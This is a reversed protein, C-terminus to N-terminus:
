AKITQWFAVVHVNAFNLAVVFVMASFLCIALRMLTWCWQTVGYARRADPDSELAGIHLNEDIGALAHRVWMLGLSALLHFLAIALFLTLLGVDMKPALFAILPEVMKDDTLIKLFASLPEYRYAVALALFAAAFWAFAIFFKKGTMGTAQIMAYRQRKEKEDSRWFLFPFYFLATAKVTFRYAIAFVFFVGLSLFGALSLFPEPFDYGRDTEPNLTYDKSLDRLIFINAQDAGFHEEAGPVLEPPSWIDVRQTMHTFNMPIARWSELRIIRRCTVIGKVAVSGIGLLILRFPLTPNFFWLGRVPQYNRTYFLKEGARIQLFNVLWKHGRLGEEISDPTRLLLLPAFLLSTWLWGIQGFFTAVAAILSVLVTELVAQRSKRKLIVSATTSHLVWDDPEQMKLKFWGSVASIGRTCIQVPPDALPNRRVDLIELAELNVIEPPLSTLENGYLDLRRLNTLQSIEPPLSTLQNGGLELHQLNTLQSIEPPLSTLKNRSLDLHRLNTLQSIEPPLSTFLNQTLDLHQLNTLQSIEPPLSTLGNRVLNLHQLNTLQSIEPPLGTLGNRVLNLHQLNTLQSIEPPLSTLQNGGLELHQLNTLQSIEPPLSTLQNGGLELHQLNTLQSIEPPLSTLGNGDLYLRRLNTLQSIEPPLSTLGNQRLGLQQLNTLRFIEPPLSTLGNRVLNLHQLNTLQSIEPPLSTLQNGGLELHQLNTLQSIEPPLSTLQNGHLDLHQLNTLQSIEPPLSTLQNGHLNLHQLNTLQSFEPPLSTLKNRSLDLHQLNTLQSIEPPLSTLQNGHLNLHQLNTLQSLEPILAAFDSDALEELELLLSTAKQAIANRVIKQAQALSM